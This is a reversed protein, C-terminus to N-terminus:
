LDIGLVKKCKRIIDNKLKDQGLAECLTLAINLSKIYEPKELHFEAIAKGYYLINLGNLNRTKQSAEIGMNSVQLAKEYDKKRLLAGSLNHCLKPYIDDSTDASHFCFEIIEIYKEKHKLMNLTFAINMLIRLETSSYVFSNYNNLDFTSTTMRISKILMSLAEDYKEKNNYM